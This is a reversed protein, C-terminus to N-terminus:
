KWIIAIVSLSLSVMEREKLCVVGLDGRDAGETKAINEENTEKIGARKGELEVKSINTYLLVYGGM